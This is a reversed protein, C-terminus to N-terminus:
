DKCHLLVLWVRTLCASVLISREAPKTDMSEDKEEKKSKKERTRKKDEVEVNSVLLQREEERFEDLFEDDVTIEPQITAPEPSALLHVCFINHIM